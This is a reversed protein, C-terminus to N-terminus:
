RRTAIGLLEAEALMEWTVSGTRTPDVDVSVSQYLQGFPTALDQPTSAAASWTAPPQPSLRGM